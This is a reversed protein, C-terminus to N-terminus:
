IVELKNLIVLIIITVILIVIGSSLIILKRRSKNEAEIIEKFEFDEESLDMSRTFFSNVFKGDTQFQPRTDKKTQLDEAKVESKTELLEHLINLDTGTEEEQKEKASVYKKNLDALLNYDEAQYKKKGEEEPKNKKAQELVENIDYIKEEFENVLDSDKIEEVPTKQFIDLDIKAQTNFNILKENSIVPNLDDYLYKNKTSRRAKSQNRKEM